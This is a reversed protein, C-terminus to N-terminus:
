AKIWGDKKMATMADHYDTEDNLVMWLGTKVGLLLNKVNENTPKIAHVNELVEMVDKRCMCKPAANEQREKTKALKAKQKEIDGASEMVINRAETVGIEKKDLAVKVEPAADVLKLRNYIHVETRGVRKAIDVVTVGWNKLKQYAAAEESPLLPKGDNSAIATFMAETDSVGNRAVRAPISKIDNGAKIAALTAKLRREGDVLIMKDMVRRVTIPVVVGNAIISATLEDMNGYDTRPNWNKDIEILRPDVKFLDGRGVISEHAVAM